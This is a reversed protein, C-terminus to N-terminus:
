ATALLFRKFDAFEKSMPVAQKTRHEYEALQPPMPVKSGIVPEVIEAFKAPDATELFVGSFGPNETQFKTLGLYAVAGHPDLTYGGEHVAKIAHRTEDDTFDAGYVDARMAAVDNGYLARM